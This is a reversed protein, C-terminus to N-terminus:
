PKKTKTNTTQTTKPKQTDKAKVTDKAKETKPKQTETSNQIDKSTMFKMLRTGNYPSDSGPPYQRM